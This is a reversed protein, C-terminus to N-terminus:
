VEEITASPEPKQPTNLKDLLGVAVEKIERKQALASLISCLTAFLLISTKV